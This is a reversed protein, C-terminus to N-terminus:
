ERDQLAECRFIYYRAAMDQQNERLVMAYLNKAEYYYGKEYLEMAKDFAHQTQRMLRIQEANRDDYVDYVGVERDDMQLFGIYRSGYSGITAASGYAAATMLFRSGMNRLWKGYSLLNEFEPALVVPIYREEDGCIGFYVNTQDLVFMVDLQEEEGYLKNDADMRALISLATIIASDAGHQCILMMSQLNADDVISIIGSQQTFQNVTNFFRNMLKEMRDLEMTEEPYMRINLVAFSGKVNSGLTLSGLNDKGLLGIISPPVFRYYTESMRQLNLIQIDIDDAMKNFVHAIGTLEDESSSRIRISRDGDAFLQMERKMEGLPALIQYFLILLVVMVIVLFAASVIVFDKIYTFTYASINSTYIGTELLYVTEGSLGGIPTICVLREGLRDKIRGTVSEGTLASKRYLEEARLNMMSEFPYFCPSESDVAIYLTGNEYCLARTYLDRTSMQQSLYQYAEGSYDYPYEIENFSDAGFLAALMNGEDVTQKVFNEDIAEKYYQYSIVGFLAMTVFLLPITAFVLREMITHGARVSSLFLTVLFLIGAAAAAYLLWKLFFVGTLSLIGYKMSNVVHVTGDQAILFHFGDGQSNEVLATFSNLSSMSMQVVDGPTYIGSGGFSSRGDLVTEESGDSLNLRIMDGSEHEGLYIYGSEAYAIFTPYMLRELTRAPYVEWVREEDACYIKGSDSIYVLNAGNGMAKYIGEDAKLPYTRTNKLSLTDALVSGFEYSERVATTRYTDAAILTVTDGAAHIWEYQYNELTLGFTKRESAFFRDFDLVMLEQGLLEGDYCDVRSRLVYVYGEGAAVDVMNYMVDKERTRFRFSKEIKGTQGVQGIVTYSGDYWGAICSGTDTNCFALFSDMPVLRSSISRYGAALGAGVLIILLIRKMAKSM